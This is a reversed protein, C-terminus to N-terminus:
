RAKRREVGCERPPHQFATWEEAAELRQGSAPLEIECDDVRSKHAEALKHDFVGLM